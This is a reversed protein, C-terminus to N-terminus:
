LVVNLSVFDALARMANVPARAGNRGWASVAVKLGAAVAEIRAVLVYRGGAAGLRPSIAQAGDTSLATEVDINLGRYRGSVAEFVVRGDIAAGRVCRYVSLHGLQLAPLYRKMAGAIAITVPAGIECTLTDAQAPTAPPTVTVIPPPTSTGAAANGTQGSQGSPRTLAWVAVALLM